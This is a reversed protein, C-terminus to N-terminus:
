LRAAVPIIEGSRLVLLVENEDSEFARGQGGVLNGVVM